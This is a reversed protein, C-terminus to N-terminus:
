VVKAIIYKISGCKFADLKSEKSIIKHKVYEKFKTEEYVRMINKDENPYIQYNIKSSLHSEDNKLLESEFFFIQYLGYLHDQVGYSNAAYFELMADCHYINLGNETTITDVHLCSIDKPLFTGEHNCERRADYLASHIFIAAEDATIWEDLEKGFFCGIMCERDLGDKVKLSDLQSVLKIEEAKVETAEETQQVPKSCSMFLCTCALLVLLIKKM